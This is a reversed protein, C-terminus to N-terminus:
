YIFAPDYRETYQGCKVLASSNLVAPTIGQGTRIVGTVTKMKGMMPVATVGIRSPGTMGSVLTYVKVLCVVYAQDVVKRSILM